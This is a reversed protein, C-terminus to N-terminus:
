FYPLFVRLHIGEGKRGEWWSFVRKGHSAMCFRMCFMFIKLASTRKYLVFWVFGTVFCNDEKFVQYQCSAQCKSLRIFTVSWHIEGRVTYALGCWSKPAPCILVKSCHDHIFTEDKKANVAKAMHHRFRVCHSGEPALNLIWKYFFM